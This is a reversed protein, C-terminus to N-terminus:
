KPFLLIFNVRIAWDPGGTPKEVFFQPGVQVSVMQKGIRFVKSGNPYVPITWQDATWDYTMEANVGASWGGGIQYALFPQIFTANVDPRNDDGAYGWIHNALAGYTWSGQIWLVVGTPGIGWQESGLSDNTGTPWLFVPGIGWTLGGPGPEKPSFFFSQVTDGLGFQTSDADIVIDDQYVVPVITRIILNWDDNISFPIVPQINLVYRFGDDNPGGDFIFNSQFPVSILSSIPNSLKQSLVEASAGGGTGPPQEAGPEDAAVVYHVADQMVHFSNGTMTTTSAAAIATLADDRSVPVALVLQRRWNPSSNRSDFVKAANATHARMRLYSAEARAQQLSECRAPQVFGLTSAILICTACAPWPSLTTM